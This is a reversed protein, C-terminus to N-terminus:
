IGRQMNLVQPCTYHHRHQETAGCSSCPRYHRSFRTPATNMGHARESLLTYTRGGDSSFAEGNRVNQWTNEDHQHWEDPNDTLPGLNTFELIGTIVAIGLQVGGGDLEMKEFAKVVDVYKETMEATEGIAALERRAHTVLESESISIDNM